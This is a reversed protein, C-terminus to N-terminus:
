PDNVLVKSLQKAEQLFTKLFPLCIHSIAM